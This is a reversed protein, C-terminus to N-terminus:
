EANDGGMMDSTSTRLHKDRWAVLDAVRYLVRGRRAGYRIFVPGRGRYRLNELTHPALGVIRSAVKTTVVDGAHTTSPKM